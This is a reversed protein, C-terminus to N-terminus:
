HTTTRCTTERTAKCVLPVMRNALSTESQNCAEHAETMQLRM